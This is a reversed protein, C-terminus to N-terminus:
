LLFPGNDFSIRFSCLYRWLQAKRCKWLIDQIFKKQLKRCGFDRVKLNSGRPAFIFPPIINLGLGIKFYDHTWNHGKESIKSRGCFLLRGCLVVVKVLAVRLIQM